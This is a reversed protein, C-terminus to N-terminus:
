PKSPRHRVAVRDIAWPGTNMARVVLKKRRATVTLFGHSSRFRRLKPHGEACVTREYLRQGGAGHVVYTVGARSRFRQYNHDHGALVLDVGYREFLPIWAAQVADSGPHNGCNYPPHHFAVIKWRADSRKLSRALWQTQERDVVNSDLLFLAVNGVTRTYYRGPMGLTAFEYEGRDLEWDHNGITGAVLVGADALWGFSARWNAAFDVGLTYDNDGLTVLVDAGRREVFREVSEGIRRQAEGGVGFDGVAVIRM